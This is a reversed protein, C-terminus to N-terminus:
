EHIVEKSPKILRVKGTLLQQMMGQKIQQTKSLRTQLTQIEEDMDSLIQAIASQEYSSPFAFKMEEVDKPRLNNISSGALLLSIYDRYLKTQFLFFIFHANANENYARFCGMFAGYTYDYENARSLFMASKGVLTKSGNAMCLLIDNPKIVQQESVRHEVVFQLDDFRIIGEQINNSRLLRKSNWTDHPHLDSDGKYSVGRHVKGFDRLEVVGWDEPIEGLETQQIGKPTGDPHHAFQPLRTKGTLLQQMTATKIAQKKAILSELGTILADVDSLATAIASQEPKPPLPIPYAKLAPLEVGTQGSSRQSLMEMLEFLADSKLFYYLYSQEINAKPIAKILAVNYAGKIGRLIQFIPPGYRGIMVDTEVCTKKALEEPIYTEFDSTKYDRIQILRVYGAKPQFCFTSRPPQSGGSFHAVDTVTLAEWDEPIVGIETQKYGQPIPNM